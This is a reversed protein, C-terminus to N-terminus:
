RNGWPLTRVVQAPNGVVYSNPPVDEAVVSGASVVSGNGITVGPLIISGVGIWAGKGITVPMAIVKHHRRNSGPGLTHTGTYIKVGPGITANDEIRVDHDISITVGYAILVGKGIWLKDYMSAGILQINGAIAASSAIERFGAWRYLRTRFPGSAFVPLMGAVMNAVHYKVHICRAASAVYAVGARLRDAPISLPHSAVGSIPMM